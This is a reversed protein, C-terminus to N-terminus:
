RDSPDRDRPRVAGVAWTGLPAALCHALWVLAPVWALFLVLIDHDLRRLLDWMVATDIANRM